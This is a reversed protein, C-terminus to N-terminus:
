GPPYSARGGRWTLIVSASLSALLVVLVIAFRSPDSMLQYHEQLYSAVINSALGLTASAIIGIAIPIFSPPRLRTAVPTKDEPAMPLDKPLRAVELRTLTDVVRNLAEYAVDYRSRGLRADYSPLGRRLGKSLVKAVELLRTHMNTGKASMTRFTLKGVAEVAALTDKTSAVLADIVSPEPDKLNGLQIAAASRVWHHEDKLASLLLHVIEPTPPEVTGLSSIVSARGLDDLEEYGNILLAVAEPSPEQLRSLADSGAGYLHRDHTAAIELLAAVLDRNAPRVYGLARVLHEQFEIAPDFGSQKRWFRANLSSILVAQAQPYDGALQALAYAASCRERFDPKRRRRWRERTDLEKGLVEALQNNQRELKKAVDGSSLEAEEGALIRSLIEVAQEGPNRLISLAQNAGAEFEARLQEATLRRTSFTDMSEDWGRFYGLAAVIYPNVKGPLQHGLVLKQHGDPLEHAAWLEVYVTHYVDNLIRCKSQEIARMLYKLHWNDRSASRAADRWVNLEADRTPKDADRLRAISSRLFTIAESCQTRTPWERWARLSNDEFIDALLSAEAERVASAHETTALEEEWSHLPGGELIDALLWADAEQVANILRVILEARNTGWRVLLPLAANGGLIRYASAQLPVDFLEETLDLTKYRFSGNKSVEKCQVLPIDGAARALFDAAKNPISPPFERIADILYQIVQPSASDFLKRGEKLAERIAEDPAEQGDHIKQWPELVFAMAQPNTEAAKCLAITVSYRIDYPDPETSKVIDLCLQVVTPHRQGLMGLAEIIKDVTRDWGYGHRHERQADILAMVIKPTGPGVRALAEAAVDRTSTHKLATLLTPIREPAGLNLNGLAKLASRQKSTRRESRAEKIHRPFGVVERMGRMSRTNALEHLFARAVYVLTRTIFAVNAAIKGTALRDAGDKGEAITLLCAMIDARADDGLSTLISEVARVTSQQVTSTQSRLWTTALSIETLYLELLKDLVEHRLESHVQVGTALSEGALLLDRHLEREYCSEANLIRRTLHTAHEEGIMAALLLVSERWDPHHMRPRLFHWTQEPYTRWSRALREAVFFEQFSLHRFGVREGQRYGYTALLGLRERLYNMLARVHVIGQAEQKVAEALENITRNRHSQLVWAVIELATKIQERSWRADNTPRGQEREQLVEDVYRQYLHARDRVLEAGEAYLAVALRLLLPNGIVRQLGSRQAMDDLMAQARDRAEEEHQIGMLIRLWGTAYPLTDDPGTFARITYCGFPEGLVRTARYGATRATMVMRCRRGEEIRAFRSVADAVAGRYIGPVEDLGDFLVVVRGEALWDRLLSRAVGLSREMSAPDFLGLDAVAKAMLEGLPETGDFGRLEVLIPIRAEGLGLKEQVWGDTAFCLAVFQLTTTKGSGPDGLIVLHRHQQLAESLPVPALPAKPRTRVEVERHHEPPSMRRGDQRKGDAQQSTLLVDARLERPQTEAAQLMVFVETLPATIQDVGETHLTSYQERVQGVYRQEFPSMNDFWAIKGDGPDDPLKHLGENAM